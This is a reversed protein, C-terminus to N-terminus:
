TLTGLLIRGQAVVAGSSRNRSNLSGNHAVAFDMGVVVMLVAGVAAVDRHFVVPVDIVQVVPVQMMLMPLMDIFVDDFDTGCIGVTVGLGAGAVVGRMDVAGAAPVFGDRVPVVNIVEHIAAQMMRVTVVAVIVALQIQRLRLVTFEFVSNPRPTM